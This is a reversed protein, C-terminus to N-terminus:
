RVACHERYDDLRPDSPDLDTVLVDVRALPIGRAAAHHGLKTHDVALVVSAAAEVLALKVAADDLTQETPGHVASLAASSVFARRAVVDRASRVALPGVLGGTRKDLTGGTLVPTVGGADQLALFTDPGNTLVTLDTFGHLRHALRQITTSADFVLAGGDGVLDLLKGAILEKEAAQRAFRRAFPEPGVAIAGGRVRRLRGTAALRGLDRRVTMASVGLSEAAWEIDVCGDRELRDLITRDRDSASLSSPRHGSRTVAPM